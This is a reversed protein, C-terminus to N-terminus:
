GDPAIMWKKFRLFGKLCCGYSSPVSQLIHHYIMKAAREGNARWKKRVKIPIDRGERRDKELPISAIRNNDAQCKDRDKQQGAKSIPYVMLFFQQSGREAMFVSGADALGFADKWSNPLPFGDHLFGTKRNEQKGPPM